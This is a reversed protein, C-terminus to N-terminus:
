QYKPRIRLSISNSIALCRPTNQITLFRAFDTALVVLLEMYLRSPRTKRHVALIVHKEDFVLYLKKLYGATYKMRLLLSAEKLYYRASCRRQSVEEETSLARVSSAASDFNPIKTSIQVSRSIQPREIFSFLFFPGFFHYLLEPPFPVFFFFFVSTSSNRAFNGIMYPIM